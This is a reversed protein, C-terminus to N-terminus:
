IKASNVLGADARRYRVIIASVYDVYPYAHVERARRAPRARSPGRSWSSGELRAARLRRSACCSVRCVRERTRRPVSRTVSPTPPRRAEAAFPRSAVRLHGAWVRRHLRRSAPQPPLLRCGPSAPSPFCMTRTSSVRDHRCCGALMGEQPVTAM